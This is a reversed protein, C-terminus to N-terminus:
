ISLGLKLRIKELLGLPPTPFIRNRSFYKVFDDRKKKSLNKNEYIMRCANKGGPGPHRADAGARILEKIVNLEPNRTALHIPLFDRLGIGLLSGNTVNAGSYIYNRVEFATTGGELLKKSLEFSIQRARANRIETEDPPLLGLFSEDEFLVYSYISKSTLGKKLLFSFVEKRNARLAVYLAIEDKIFEPNASLLDELRPIDGQYAAYAFDSVESEDGFSRGLSLVPM